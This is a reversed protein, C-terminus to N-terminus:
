RLTDLREEISKLLREISQHEEPLDSAPPLNYLGREWQEIETALLLERLMACKTELLDILREHSEKEM